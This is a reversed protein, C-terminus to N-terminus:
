SAIRALSEHAVRQLARLYDVHVQWEVPTAPATALDVTDEHADLLEHVLRELEVARTTPALDFVTM